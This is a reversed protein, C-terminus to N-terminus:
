YGWARAILLEYGTVGFVLLIKKGDGYNQMKWFIMYNSDYLVYGKLNRESLLLQTLKEM